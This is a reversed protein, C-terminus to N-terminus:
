SKVKKNGNGHGNTKSGKGVHAPHHPNKPNKYWGKHKGQDHKAEPLEAIKCSSMALNICLATILFHIKKM